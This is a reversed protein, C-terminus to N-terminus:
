HRASAQKRKLNVREGGHEVHPGSSTQGLGLSGDDAKGSIRNATVKQPKPTRVWTQDFAFSPKIHIQINSEHFRVSQGGSLQQQPCGHGVESTIGDAQSEAGKHSIM